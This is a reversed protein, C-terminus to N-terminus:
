GKAWQGKERAKKSASGRGRVGQGSSISQKNKAKRRRSVFLLTVICGKTGNNGNSVINKKRPLLTREEKKNGPHKEGSGAGSQCNTLQISKADGFRIANWRHHKGVIRRIRIQVVVVKKGIMSQGGGKGERGKEARKL